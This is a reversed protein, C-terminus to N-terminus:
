TKRKRAYEERGGGMANIRHCSNVVILPGDPWWSNLMILWIYTNRWLSWSVSWSGHDSHSTLPQYEETAFNYTLMLYLDASSVTIIFLTAVYTSWCDSQYRLVALLSRTFSLNCRVGLVLSSSSWPADILNVAHKCNRSIIASLWRWVDMSTYRYTPRHPLWGLSDSCRWHLVGDTM